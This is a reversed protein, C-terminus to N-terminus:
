RTRTGTRLALEVMERMRPHDGKIGHVWREFDPVPEGVRFLFYWANMPGLFSFRRGLDASLAEYGDFSRLYTQFGGRERDLTLMARANAVTARIKRASHLIGPALLLREVDGEGFAAVAPVDFGCFERRYSEWHLAISRWSLGTQFVARTLVEFYDNLTQPVIVEPVASSNM